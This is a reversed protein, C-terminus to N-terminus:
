VPLGVFAVTVSPHAADRSSLEIVAEPWCINLMSDLANLGGEASPQYAATHFYLLECDEKLTQFGHAFGEPILLSKHNDASLIEVHWHLFTPSGQRLDVAVDFVEGRLCSVIKTEAYPPYQFHLGRVTGRKATLTHNIQVIGRGPILSQLEEACFMRELYGRHDGIPNRQILKLGQLPTDLIDFCYSM